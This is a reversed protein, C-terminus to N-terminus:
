FRTPENANNRPTPSISIYHGVIIFIFCCLDNHPIIVRPQNRLHASCVYCSTGCDVILYPASHFPTQQSRRLYDSSTLNCPEAGGRERYGGLVIIMTPGVLKTHATRKCLAAPLSSLLFIFLFTQETCCRGDYKYKQTNKCALCYLIVVCLLYIHVLIYVNCFHM